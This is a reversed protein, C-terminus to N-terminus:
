GMSEIGHSVVNMECTLNYKFVNESFLLFLRYSTNVQKKDIKTVRM